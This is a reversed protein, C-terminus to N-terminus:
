LCVVTEDLKITLFQELTGLKKRLPTYGPTSAVVKLTKRKSNPSLVDLLDRTLDNENQVTPSNDVQLKRKLRRNENTLSSIKVILSEKEKAADRRYCKRANLGRAQRSKAGTPRARIRGRDPHLTCSEDKCKRGLPCKPHKARISAVRKRTEEKIRNHDYDPNQM